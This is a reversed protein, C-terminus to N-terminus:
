ATGTQRAGTDTHRDCLLYDTGMVAFPTREADQRYAHPLLVPLGTAKLIGILPESGTFNSELSIIGCCNNERIRRVTDRAQVASLSLCTCTEVSFNMELAQQQIGPLIFRDPLTIDEANRVVVLIKRRGAACKVFTGEGKVRVILNELALRSLASRLTKRSVRLEEALLPEVPLPGDAYTGAAIRGKLLEYVAETKPAKRIQM